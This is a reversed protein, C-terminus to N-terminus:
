MNTVKISMLKLDDKSLTHAKKMIRKSDSEISKELKFLKETNIGINSKRGDPSEGVEIQEGFEVNEDFDSDSSVDQNIDELNPTTKEKPARMKMISSTEDDVARRNGISVSLRSFAESENEEVLTGLPQVIVKNVEDERPQNQSANSVPKFSSTKTTEDDDEGLENDDEDNISSAASGLEKRNMRVSNLDERKPRSLSSSERHLSQFQALSIMQDCVCKVRNCFTDLHGFIVNEESM